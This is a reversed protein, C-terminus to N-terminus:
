NKVLRTSSLGKAENESGEEDLFGGNEIAVADAREESEERESWVRVVEERMEEEEVFGMTEKEEKRLRRTEDRVRTLAEDFSVSVKKKSSSVGSIVAM